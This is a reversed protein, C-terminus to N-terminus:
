DPFFELTSVFKQHRIGNLRNGILTTSIRPAYWLDEIQASYRYIYIHLKSPQLPTTKFLCIEPLGITHSAICLIAPTYHIASSLLLLSHLFTPTVYWKIELESSFSLSSSSQRYELFIYFWFDDIITQVTQVLM